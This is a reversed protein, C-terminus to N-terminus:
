YQFYKYGAAAKLSQHKKYDADLVWSGANIHGGCTTELARLFAFLEGTKWTSADRVTHTPVCQTPNWEAQPQQQERVNDGDHVWKFIRWAELFFGLNGL